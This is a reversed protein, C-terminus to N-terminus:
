ERLAISTLCVECSTELIPHARDDRLINSTWCTWHSFARYDDFFEFEKDTNNFIVERPLDRGM